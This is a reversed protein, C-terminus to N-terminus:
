DFTVQKIKYVESFPFWLSLNNIFVIRIFNGESIIDSVEKYEIPSSSTKTYVKIKM